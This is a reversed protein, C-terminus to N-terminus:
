LSGKQRYSITQKQVFIRNTNLYKYITESFSKLIVFNCGITLQTKVITLLSFLPCLEECGNEMCATHWLCKAIDASFYDKGHDQVSEWLDSTAMIKLSIHSYLFYFGPIVEMKATSAHKQAAVIDLMYARMIKFRDEEPLSKYLAIRPLITQVLTKM